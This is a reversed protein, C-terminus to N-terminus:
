RGATGARPAAPGRRPAAAPPAAPGPAAVLWKTEWPRKWSFASYSLGPRRGQGPSPGEAGGGGAARGLGRGAAGAWAWPLPGGSPRPCRREKPARGRSTAGRGGAVRGGAREPDQACGQPGEAGGAVPLSGPSVALAGGGERGGSLAGIDPLWRMGARGKPRKPARQAGRAQVAPGGEQGEGAAGPARRGGGHGSTVGAAGRSRRGSGAAGVAGPSGERGRAGRGRGGRGGPLRRRQGRKIDPRPRRRGARERPEAAAPEARPTSLALPRQM